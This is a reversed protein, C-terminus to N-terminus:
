QDKAEDIADDWGDNYADSRIAVISDIVETVIRKDTILADLAIRIEEITM